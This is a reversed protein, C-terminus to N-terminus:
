EDCRVSRPPTNSCQIGRTVGQALVACATSTAGLIAHERDAALNTRCAKQGGYEICVECEVSAERTLAFVLVIAFVAALAAGVLRNM